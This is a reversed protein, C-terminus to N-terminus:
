EANCLSKNQGNFLPLHKISERLQISTLNIINPINSETCYNPTGM